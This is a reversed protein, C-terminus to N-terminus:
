YVKLFLDNLENIIMMDINLFAERLAKLEYGLPQVGINGKRTLTYTESGEDETATSSTGSTAGTQHDTRTDTTADTQTGTVTESAVGNELTAETMYKDINDISGQPTDSRKKTNNTTGTNTRNDTSTQSGEGTSSGDLESETESTGQSSGRSTHQRTYEERLNYAEFPDEVSKL